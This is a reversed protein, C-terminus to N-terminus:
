IQNVGGRHCDEEHLYKQNWENLISFFVAINSDAESSIDCSVSLQEETDPSISFISGSSDPNTLMKTSRM